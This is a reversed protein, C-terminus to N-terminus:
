LQGGAQVELEGDGQTLM